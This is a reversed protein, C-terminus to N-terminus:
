QPITTFVKGMTVGRLLRSKQEVEKIFVTLDQTRLEYVRVGELLLTCDYEGRETIQIIIATM